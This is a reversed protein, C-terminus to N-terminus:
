CDCHHAECGCDDKCPNCNTGKLGTSIVREGGCTSAKGVLLRYSAGDNCQCVDFQYYGLCDTITHAVGQQGCSTIKILKLYACPVPVGNCDKIQGWIRTTDRYQVTVDAKIESDCKDLTFDVSNGIVYSDDCCKEHSKVPKGCNREENYQCDSYYNKNM